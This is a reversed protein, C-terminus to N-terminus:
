GFLPIQRLFPFRWNKEFIEQCFLIAISYDLDDSLFLSSFILFARTSSSASLCTQPAHTAHRVPELGTERVLYSVHFHLSSKKYVCATKSILLKRGRRCIGHCIGNEGRGSNETSQQIQFNRGNPATNPRWQVSIGTLDFRAKM